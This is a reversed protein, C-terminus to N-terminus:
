KNFFEKYILDKSEELSMYEGNKVQTMGTDISQKIRNSIATIFEIRGDEYVKNAFDTLDQNQLTATAM